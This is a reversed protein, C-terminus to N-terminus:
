CSRVEKYVRSVTDFFKIYRPNAKLNPHLILEPDMFPPLEVDGYIMYWDISQDWQADTQSDRFSKLIKNKLKNGYEALFANGVRQVKGKPRARRIKILEPHHTYLYKLQTNTYLRKNILLKVPLELFFDILKYDFFPLILHGHANTENLVSRILYRRIDHETFWRM